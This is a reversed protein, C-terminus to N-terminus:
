PTSAGAHVRVSSLPIGGADHTRLQLPAGYDLEVEWADVPAGGEFPTIRAPDQEDLVSKLSPRELWPEPLGGIAGELPYRLADPQYDVRVTVPWTNGAVPGQGSGPPSGMG